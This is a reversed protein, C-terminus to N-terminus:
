VSFRCQKCAGALAIMGVCKCYDVMADKLEGMRERSAELSIGHKELVVELIWSDTMGQHAIEEIRADVGFVKKM